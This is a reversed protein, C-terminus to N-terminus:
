RCHSLPPLLDAIIPFAVPGYGARLASSLSRGHDKRRIRDALASRRRGGIQLSADGALRALNSAFDNMGAPAIFPRNADSLMPVVDGVNPSVVALGAAMAEVV